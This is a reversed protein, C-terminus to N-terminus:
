VQPAFLHFFHGAHDADHGGLVDFAGVAQFENDGVTGDKTVLLDAIHSVRDCRNDGFCPFLGKGSGPRNFDFILEQRRDLSRGFAQGFPGNLNVFIPGIQTVGLRLDPPVRLRGQRLGGGYDLRFEGGLQIVLGRQLRFGAHGIQFFFLSFLRDQHHDAPTDIDMMM